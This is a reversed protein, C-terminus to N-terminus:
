RLRALAAASACPRSTHVDGLQIYFSDLLVKCKTLFAARPLGAIMRLRVFVRPDVIHDM